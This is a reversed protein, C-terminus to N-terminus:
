FSFEDKEEEKPVAVCFGKENEELVFTKVNRINKGTTEEGTRVDFRYKHWPCELEQEKTLIGKSLSTMMHPCADEIAYFGEKTRILCVKKMDAWFAKHQNIRLSKEAEELSNYLKHWIIKKEM